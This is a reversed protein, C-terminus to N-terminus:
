IKLSIPELVRLEVVNLNFIGPLLYREKNILYCVVDPHRVLWM